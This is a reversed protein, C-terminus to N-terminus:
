FVELSNEGQFLLHISLNLQEGSGERTYYGTFGEDMEM